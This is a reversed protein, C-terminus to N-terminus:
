KDDLMGENYLEIIRDILEIKAPDVIKKLAILLEINEDEENCSVIEDATEKHKEKRVRRNGENDRSKKIDNNKITNGNVGNNINNANIQENISNLDFGDKGMNSLMNGLGTMDINGGLLGLLQQPSIGFPNSNMSGNLQNRVMRNGENSKHRHKSM